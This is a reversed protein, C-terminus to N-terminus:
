ASDCNISKCYSIICRSATGLSNTSNVTFLRDDTYTARKMVLAHVNGDGEFLVDICQTLKVEDEFKTM